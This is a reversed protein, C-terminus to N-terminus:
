GGQEKKLVESLYKLFRIKNEPSVQGLNVDALLIDNNAKDWVLALNKSPKKGLLNQLEPDADLDDIMKSLLDLRVALLPTAKVTKFKEELRKRREELDTPDM